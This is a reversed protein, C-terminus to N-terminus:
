IEHAAARTLFGHLLTDFQAPQELYPSHGCNPLVHRQV